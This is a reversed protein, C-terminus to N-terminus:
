SKRIDTTTLPLVLEDDDEKRQIAAVKSEGKAVERKADDYMWLGLFTLAIGCGQAFRVTDHFYVISLLIVFIRKVLSAISYTIPSVLSLVWFAILCQFFNTAGNAFFLLYVVSSPRPGDKQLLAWGEVYLWFPTMLLFAILSSLYLMNIKDLKPVGKTKSPKAAPDIGAASEKRAGGVGAQNFLKKSFINQAVFVFTASFACLVGTMQFKIENLCVLMVGLTLPILSVYVKYSYSIGFGLSYAFVTILPSSAKITHALSVPIRSIAISSLIHSVIQFVALPMITWLVPLRPAMLRGLGLFSGVLCFLSVLGFQVWTLTVPYSFENLLQKGFNNTFSSSLYWAICLAAFILNESSCLTM